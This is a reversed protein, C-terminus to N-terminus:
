VSPLPPLRETRTPSSRTSHEGVSQQLPKMFSSSIQRTSMFAPCSQPYRGRVESTFTCMAMIFAVPM